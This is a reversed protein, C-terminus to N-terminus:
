KALMLSRCYFMTIDTRFEGVLLCFFLFFCSVDRLHSMYEPLKYFARKQRPAKMMVNHIPAIFFKANSDKPAATTNLEDSWGDYGGSLTM